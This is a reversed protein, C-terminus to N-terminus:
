PINSHTPRYLSGARYRWGYLTCVASSTSPPMGMRESKMQHVTTKTRKEQGSLAKKLMLMESSFIASRVRGVDIHGLDM